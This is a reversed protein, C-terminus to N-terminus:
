DVTRDGLGKSNAADVNPIYSTEMNSGKLWLDVRIRLFLFADNHRPMENIPLNHCLIDSLLSWLQLIPQWRVGVDGIKRSWKRGDISLPRRPQDIGEEWPLDGNESRNVIQYSLRLVLGLLFGVLGRLGIKEVFEFVYAIWLRAPLTDPDIVEFPPEFTFLPSYDLVARLGSAFGDEHFGYRTWAGAYSIRRTNQISPLLTQANLAKADLIPHDYKWRGVVKKPDPEFPPNLTVLVPGHLPEPLHQLDNMWYTLAVRDQEEKVDSSSSTLYNWCSWAVRRKPMLEIDAHLVAENRSWGFSGLVDRERETLGGGAKLLQLTTDSHTAVIVHDFIEQSGSATTLTIQNSTSSISHIPTNLHLQSTPLKSLIANVYTKSGGKITLWSPKGTIQLLHHNHMFQVLTRTPFDMACKDPPTSWIAATMPILYDDRFERSYGEKELYEGISADGAKGGDLLVNRACANFRIVDWVLRWMGGDFVRWGQAFVSLLNKGAWSFTMETPIIQIQPHLNLFSLFSPYTTPNFVIFGTDVDVPDRGEQQFKVTNAHGGPRSDTEFLHVEHDSYENLLWTAALGSVGSGVVAVKM